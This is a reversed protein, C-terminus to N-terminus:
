KEQYSTKCMSPLFILLRWLFLYLAFYLFFWVKTCSIWLYQEPSNTLKEETSDAELCFFALITESFIVSFFVAQMYRPLFCQKPLFIMKNWFSVSITWHFTIFYIWYPFGLCHFYLCMECLSSFNWNQFQKAGSFIRHSLALVFLSTLTEKKDGCFFNLFLRSITSHNM